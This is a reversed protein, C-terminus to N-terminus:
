TADILNSIEDDKNEYHQQIRMEIPPTGSCITNHVNKQPAKQNTFLSANAGTGNRLFGPWRDRDTGLRNCGNCQTKFVWQRARDLRCVRWTSTTERDDWIQGCCLLNWARWLTRWTKTNKLTTENLQCSDLSQQVYMRGISTSVVRRRELSSSIGIEGIVNQRRACKRRFWAEFSNWNERM